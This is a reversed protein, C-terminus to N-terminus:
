CTAPLTSPRWRAISIRDSPAPGSSFVM